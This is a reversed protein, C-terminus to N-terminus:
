DDVDGGDGRKPRARPASVRDCRCPSPSRRSGAQTIIGGGVVVDDRYLVASQGPASGSFPEGLEIRARDGPLRRLRAVAVAASKYRLQVTLGDGTGLGRDVLERVEVVSVILREAPGVVVRGSEPEIALVYLPEAASLGLGRRQGVTFRWWGDHTGLVRGDGDVIEGAQRPAGRATLFERHDGPAFCVDQSEAQDAAPLGARRARARVAPKTLEGLPLLLRELTEPPVRWLMYSQDKDRDRGRAIRPEGAVRVVRAYHGTAVWAAGFRDALSVLRKLRGPNCAICPNPTEGALYAGVFPAVVEAEFRPEDNVSFHPSGIAHASERARVVAAPSCCSREDDGPWLKLTAARVQYGDERLALAAV